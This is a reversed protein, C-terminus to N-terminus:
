TKMNTSACCQGIHHHAPHQPQASEEGLQHRQAGSAWHCSPWTEPWDSRQCAAPITELTYIRLCYSIIHAPLTGVDTDQRSMGSSNHRKQSTGNTQISQHQRSQQRHARSSNFVELGIGEVTVSMSIWYYGSGCRYCRRRKRNREISTTGATTM